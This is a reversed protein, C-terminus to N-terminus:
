GGVRGSDLFEKRWTELEHVPVQVERSAADVGEGRFRRRVVDTKAKESWREPIAPAPEHEKSLAM